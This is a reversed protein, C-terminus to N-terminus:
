NPTPTQITVTGANTEEEDRSAKNTEGSASM